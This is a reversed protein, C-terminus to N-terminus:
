MIKTRGEEATKFGAWAPRTQNGFAGILGRAVQTALNATLWNAIASVAKVVAAKFLSSLLYFPCESSFSFALPGYQKRIKIICQFGSLPIVKPCLSVSKLLWIILLYAEICM